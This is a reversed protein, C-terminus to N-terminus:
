IKGSFYDQISEEVDWADCCPCGREYDPCKKGYLKEITEELWCLHSAEDFCKNCEWYEVEKEKGTWKVVPINSRGLKMKGVQRHEGKGIPLKMKGFYHGNNYHGDLYIRASLKKGCVVCKRTIKRM